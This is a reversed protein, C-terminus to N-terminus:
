SETLILDCAVDHDDEILDDEKDWSFCLGCKFGTYNKLYADYYGKGYGLRFKHQNFALLPIIQVDISDLYPENSIPELIGYASKQCQNLDTIQIFIMENNLIKPVCLIKSSLLCRSILDITSVEHDMSVYIGVSQKDKIIEWAKEQLRLSAAILLVPDLSLRLDKHKKRLAAKNM